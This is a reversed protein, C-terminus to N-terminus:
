SYIVMKLLLKSMVLPYSGNFDGYFGMLIGNFGM